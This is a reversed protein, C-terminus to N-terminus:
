NNSKPNFKQTQEHIFRHQIQSVRKKKMYSNTNISKSVFKSNQKNFFFFNPPPFHTTNHIFIFCLHIFEHFFFFSSSLFEHFFIPFFSSPALALITKVHSDQKLLPLFTMALPKQKPTRVFVWDVTAVYRIKMWRLLKNKPVEVICEYISTYRYEQKM